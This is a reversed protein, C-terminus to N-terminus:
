DNCYIVNFSERVKWTEKGTPIWIVIHRLVFTWEVSEPAFVLDDWRQYYLLFFGIELFRQGSRWNYYFQQEISGASLNALKAYM